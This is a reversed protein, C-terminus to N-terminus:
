EQELRKPLLVKVLGSAGIAAIYVVGCALLTPLFALKGNLLEIGTFRFIGYVALAALGAGFIKLLNIGLEKTLYNGTVKTIASAIVVAYVTFLATTSLAVAVVGYDVVFLNILPKLAMMVISGIVPVRYRSGLYLIKNFLEQCVYGFIGFTYIVFLVATEQTLERTFKGREYLLSMIDGGFIVAVLIFPVIIAMLLLILQQITKKVAVANGKEYYKSIFPFSVNSMAVVFISAITVFFNSAYNITTAAGSDHSVAAKDFVFCMQFMMSSIFIYLVEINREQLIGTKNEKDWYFFRFGKRYFDPLLIAIHLFWGLTTIWCIAYIDINRMMLAGIIIVNYPLSMISTIFFVKCNQLVGSMIYAVIVFLASPLMIYMMNRADAYFSPDLGPLLMKVIPGAAIYMVATAALVMLGIKQIFCSVYQKQAIPNQNEVKNLNKIVLTALSTGIGTFVNTAIGFIQFYIDTLESAGFASAFIINRGFGMCKAVMIGFVMILYTSGKM